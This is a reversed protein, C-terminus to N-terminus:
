ATEAIGVAKGNKVKVIFNITTNNNQSRISKKTKKFTTKCGDGFTFKCNSAIQLTVKRRNAIRKGKYNTLYFKGRITITRGKFTIKRIVNNNDPTYEPTEASIYYNKPNVAADARIGQGLSTALALVIFVSCMKKM